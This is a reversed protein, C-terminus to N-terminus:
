SASLGTALNWDKAVSVYEIVGDTGSALKSAREALGIDAHEGKTQFVYGAPESNSPVYETRGWVIVNDGQDSVATVMVRAIPMSRFRCPRLVRGACIPQSNLPGQIMRFNRTTM